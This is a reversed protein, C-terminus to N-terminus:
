DLVKKSRTVVTFRKILRASKLPGPVPKGQEALKGMYEQLGTFSPKLAGLELQEETAGLARMFEPYGPDSRDPMYPQETVSPTGTAWQGELRPEPMSAMALCGLKQLRELQKNIEKRADDYHKHAQKLVYITDMLLAPDAITAKPAIYALQDILYEYSKITDSHLAELVERPEPM